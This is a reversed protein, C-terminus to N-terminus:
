TPMEIQDDLHLRKWDIKGRGNRPIQDVFRIIRPVRSSELYRSCHGRVEQETLGSEPSAVVFAAVMQGEIEDPVGRVAAELIGEVRLLASEIERPSVREGRCKIMDDRRGTFYLNGEPDSYFYDGTHLWRDSPYPGSGFVKRSGEPDQWYGQMVNSGRVIMEGVSGPPVERGQEDVLLVECNPMPTGVSPLLRDIEEPPLYSV